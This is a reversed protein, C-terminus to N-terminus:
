RADLATFGDAILAHGNRLFAKVVGRSWRSVRPGRMEVHRELTLGNHDFMRATRSVANRAHPEQRRAGRRVACVTSGHVRRVTASTSATTPIFDSGPLGYRPLLIVQRNEGSVTDNLSWGTTFRMTCVWIM